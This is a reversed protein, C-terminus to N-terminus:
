MSMSPSDLAGACFEWMYSKTTNKRGPEKLVQLPSEDINILPGSRIENQLMQIFPACSAAVKVAWNAMTARPLEVGMRIFIKLQRYLPLADTFKSVIIHAL